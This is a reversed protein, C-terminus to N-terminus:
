SRAELVRRRMVEAQERIQQTLQQVSLADINGLLPDFGLTATLRNEAVQMQGLAQYRRLLSLTATTANSVVDLKSQTQAIERARMMDAIRRDVEWIADARFYQDRTNQLALRALHMQTLAALQMGMRRQDALAVGAEALRVQAPGALLNLLNFSIQVGAEQWQRHLLYSDSDYSGGLNVSVNPFLRSLTRRVEERAIRSNYHAERLDPNFALVADEMRALPLDLLLRGVDQLGEESLVLNQGLPANILQALETQASSLEQGIAELLRLNELLQRQYRLADLPSRVRLGEASRADRLADEALRVTRTVEDRLKQAAMARFFATRVDQLLQHMAKRRREGAVLARDAQQRSAHYGMSLDLLSWTFELGGLSRARDQSVTSPTASDRNITVRDSDRWDYGAQAVLRPLMDLNSTELQRLAIVEEIMRARRDLNYKLARAMAEELTIPGGIPEVGRQMRQADSQATAGMEPASLLKPAPLAAEPLSGCAAVLLTVGAAAARLLLGYRHRSKGTFSM